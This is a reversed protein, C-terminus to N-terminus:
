DYHDRMKRIDDKHERVFWKHSADIAIQAQEATKFPGILEDVENYYYFGDKEEVINIM